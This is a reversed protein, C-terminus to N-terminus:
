EGKYGKPLPQWAKIGGHIRGWYWTLEHEGDYGKDGIRQLKTVKGNETTVLVNIVPSFTNKNYTLIDEPMSKSCLIWGDNMTRRNLIEIVDDLDLLNDSWYYGEMVEFTVSKLESVIEEFETKNM